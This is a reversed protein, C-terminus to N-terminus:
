PRCQIFGPEDLKGTASTKGDVLRSKGSTEPPVGDKLITWTIDADRPVPSDPAVEIVFTVPEGQKYIADPREAKVLFAPKPKPAQGHLVSAFILLPFASLRILHPIMIPLHAYTALTVPNCLRDQFSM